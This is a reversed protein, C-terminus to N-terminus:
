RRFCSCSPRFSPSDPSGGEFDDLLELNESQRQGHLCFRFRINALTMALSPASQTTKSEFDLLLSVIRHTVNGMAAGETAATVLRYATHTHKGGPCHVQVNCCRHNGDLHGILCPINRWTRDFVHGGSMFTMPMIRSFEALLEYLFVRVNVASAADAM